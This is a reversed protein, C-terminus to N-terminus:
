EDTLEINGLLAQLEQEAFCSHLVLQVLNQLREPEVELANRILTFSPTKLIIAVLKKLKILAQEQNDQEFM